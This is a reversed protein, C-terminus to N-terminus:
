TRNKERQRSFWFKPSLEALARKLQQYRHASDEPTDSTSKTEPFDWIAIVQKDKDLEVIVDLGTNPATECRWVGDTSFRFQQGGIMLLGPESTPVRVVKGRVRM